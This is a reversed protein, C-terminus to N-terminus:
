KRQMCTWQNGPGRLKEAEFANESFAMKLRKEISETDAHDKEGMELSVALVNGELYMPILIVVDEIKQLMAVLKLKNLWVAMDGKGTFPRLIDSSLRM